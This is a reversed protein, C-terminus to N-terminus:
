SIDAKYDPKENWRKLNIFNHVNYCNEGHQVKKLMKIAETRDIIKGKLPSYDEPRFRGVRIHDLNEMGNDIQGKEIAAEALILYMNPSSINIQGIRGEGMSGYSISGDSVGFMMELWNRVEIDTSEKDGKWYM